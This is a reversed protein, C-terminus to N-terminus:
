NKVRVPPTTDRTSYASDMETGSIKGDTMLIAQKGLGAAELRLGVEYALSAYQRNSFDGLM